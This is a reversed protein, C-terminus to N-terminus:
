ASNKRKFHRLPTTLAKEIDWGSNLRKRLASFDINYIKSWDTMCHTEGNFTYKRSTRKNKCQENLPIWTCNEPCYDGNVDIREITLSDDYGNEYAWNKFIIFSDKWEECIKIGRGGYNKYSKNNKDNCRHKMNMWITFLRTKTMGHTKKLKSCNEYSLCGCSNTRKGLCDTKVIVTNGCDCKCVWQTISRNDSKRRISQAEEVVVLRGYREGIHNIKRMKIVLNRIKKKYIRCLGELM